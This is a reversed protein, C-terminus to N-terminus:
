YTVYVPCVQLGNSLLAAGVETGIYGGGIVIARRPNSTPQMAHVLRDADAVDRLHLL